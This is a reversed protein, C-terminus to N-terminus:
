YLIISIWSNQQIVVNTLGVLKNVVFIQASLTVHQNNNLCDVYEANHSM